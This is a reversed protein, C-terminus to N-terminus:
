RRGVVLAGALRQHPVRIGLSVPPVGLHVLLIHPSQTPLLLPPWVPDACRLGPLDPSAPPLFDGPLAPSSCLAITQGVRASSGASSGPWYGGGFGGGLQTHGPPMLPLGSLDPSAPPPARWSSLSLLPLHKSWGSLALTSASSGPQDGTGWPGGVGPRMPGPPTPLLGVPCCSLCAPPARQSSCSLLPLRKGM